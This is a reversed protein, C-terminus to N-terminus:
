PVTASGGAGRRRGEASTGDNNGAASYAPRSASKALETIFETNHGPTFEGKEQAGTLEREEGHSTIIAAM